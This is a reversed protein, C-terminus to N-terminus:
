EFRQLAFSNKGRRWILLSESMVVLDVMGEKLASLADQSTCVIPEEHRNFSTNILASQGTREHWATLLRHMFNDTQPRVVQPRATGDIHVVAPSAEIFQSHCDYTMTMTDAAVQDDTWGVYCDPAHDVATVPGFPMFETRHMRQNLWANVDADMAHYVISRNCLSRPGFEMKGKFMGLVQNQMLAEVLTDIINGPAQYALEPYDRNLLNINQSTSRADPGLTMVPNKFRTGNKLYATGVAAALALGGDGMCPLVYVNKVGAIERLRQNLKVNGFVGGALCLNNSGHVKLHHTVVAVLLDETHRQVAAAIDEPKETAFLAQLPDSYTQYSPLFMDGCTAKIRGDEFRIMQKMVDLLKESDGFAALGTIKGEHRNPKYGLLHTIRGYFYGLSDISTERQLVNTESPSYYTLTLAQFDGRGDCTLTLAEDFPSCVYAGLAHCEHHDIYYAKGVLGQDLIYADFEARKEKDNNLEDIIRQRFLPVGKPNSKVEEVIRDFYLPLHKDANFGANWGYAVYDVDQITMGSQTLVFDISQTPWVKHDKIRTFREESVASLIQGDRVLCAGSLDNNTIGLVIM